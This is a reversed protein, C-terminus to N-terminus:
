DSAFMSSPKRAKYLSVTGFLTTFRTPEEVAVFGADRFMEPLRGHVNDAMEETWRLVYSVVLSYINHPKGFDLVHLEGGPRLVRFAETVAHQKNETDLHHFLFSSLLRDICHNPYPLRSAEGEHLIIEVGLDLAKRRAIKLIRLDVDLGIVTTEPHMQKALLALTATGCGVDLVMEGPLIRAQQLLCSKLKRDPLTLEVLPDYCPTLWHFHMAPIYRKKQM